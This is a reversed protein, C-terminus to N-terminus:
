CQSERRPSRYVPLSTGTAPQQALSWRVHCMCRTYWWDATYWDPADHINTPLWTKEHTCQMHAPLTIFVCLIHLGVCMYTRNTWLTRTFYHGLGGCEQRRGRAVFMTVACSLADANHMLKGKQTITICLLSAHYVLITATSFEMKTTPESGETQWAQICLKRKGRAM